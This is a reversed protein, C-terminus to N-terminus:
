FAEDVSLFREGEGGAPGPRLALWWQARVRKMAGASSKQQQAQGDLGWRLVEQM